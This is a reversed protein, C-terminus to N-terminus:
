KIASRSTCTAWCIKLWKKMREPTVIKVNEGDSKNEAKPYWPQRDTGRAKVRLVKEKGSKGKAKKAYAFVMDVYKEMVTELEELKLQTYMTSFDYTQQSGQNPKANASNMQQMRLRVQKSNKIIWSGHANIGVTAFIDKWIQESVPMMANLAKGIWMALPSLSTEHSCAMVRLQNDKHCKVSVGMTPIAEEYTKGHTVENDVQQSLWKKCHIVYTNSAKDAKLIAYKKKMEKLAQDSVKDQKKAKEERDAADRASPMADNVKEMFKEKWDM